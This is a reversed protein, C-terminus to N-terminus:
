YAVEMPEGAKLLEIAEKERKSAAFLVTSDFSNILSSLLEKKARLAKMKQLDDKPFEYYRAPLDQISIRVLDNNLDNLVSKLETVIKQGENSDVAYALNEFYFALEAKAKIIEDTKLDTM